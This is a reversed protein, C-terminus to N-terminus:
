RAAGDGRLPLVAVIRRRLAWSLIPPIRLNTQPDTQSMSSSSAPHLVPSSSPSQLIQPPPPSVRPPPSSSFPPSQYSVPSSSVPHTSPQPLHTKKLHGHAIQRQAISTECQRNAHHRYPRVQHKPM